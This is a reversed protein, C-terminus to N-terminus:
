KGQTQVAQSAIAKEIMEIAQRVTKIESAIDDSVSIAFRDEVAMIFQVKELSDFNLDTEIDADLSVREEAIDVQKTVLEAVQQSVTDEPRTRM